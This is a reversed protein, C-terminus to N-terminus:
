IEIMFDDSNCYFDSLNWHQITSQFQVGWTQLHMKTPSFTYNGTRSREEPSNQKKEEVGCLFFKLLTKLNRSMEIIWIELFCSKDKELVRVYRDEM